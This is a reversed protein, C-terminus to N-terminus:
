EDKLKVVDENLSIDAQNRLEAVVKALRQRQVIATLQPKAEDFSPPEATRTDELLIVHWGFQTRVPTETYQGPELTKVADAFPKVMREANFWDLDGGKKGTPGLSHAKALEAFDAKKDLEGILEKAKDENDVLIHSAKYETRDIGSILQEYAEKLEADTPPAEQLIAQQAASSIIKMRQLAFANRVDEREDLKRRRGEQSVVVLNVLENFAREQFEPSNQAKEARLRELYFLRFVELPVDQGNITAITAGEAEDAASRSGAAWVPAQLTLALCIGSALLSLRHTRM